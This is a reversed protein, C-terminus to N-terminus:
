LEFGAFFCPLEVMLEDGRDKRKRGEVDEDGVFGRRRLSSPTSFRVLSRQSESRLLLM